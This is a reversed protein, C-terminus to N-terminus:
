QNQSAASWSVPYKPALLYPRKFCHQQQPHHHHTNSSKQQEKQSPSILLFVQLFSVEPASVLTHNWYHTFLVPFFYISPTPCFVACTHSNRGSLFFFVSSSPLLDPFWRFHFSVDELLELSRTSLIVNTEAFTLKEPNM